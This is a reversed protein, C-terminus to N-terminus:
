SNINAMETILYEVSWNPVGSLRLNADIRLIERHNQKQIKM